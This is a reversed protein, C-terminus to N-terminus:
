RFKPENPGGISDLTRIVFQELDVEGRRVDAAVLKYSDMLKPLIEKVFNRARFSTALRDAALASDPHAMWERCLFVKLLSYEEDVPSSAAPAVTVTAEAKKFLKAFM